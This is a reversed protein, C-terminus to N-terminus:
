LMPSILRVIKEILQVHKPRNLWAQIEIRESDQLDTQFNDALESALVEDYIVANVEFNLDFSRYDLNATGVIALIQDAVM